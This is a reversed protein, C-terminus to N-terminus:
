GVEETIFQSWHKLQFLGKGRSPNNIKTLTNVVAVFLLSLATWNPMILKFPRLNQCSNGSDTPSHGCHTVLYIAVM